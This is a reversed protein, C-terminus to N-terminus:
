SVEGLRDGSRGTTAWLAYVEFKVGAWARYSNVSMMSYECYLSVDHRRHVKYREVLVVTVEANTHSLIITQLTARVISAPVM